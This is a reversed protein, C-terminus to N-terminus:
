RAHRVPRRPRRPPAPLGIAAMVARERRRMRRREGPTGDDEGALHLLGHVMYYALEYRAQWGLERAVRAATEASAVIDGCLGDAASAALDFTLVDTPDSLGMWRDHLTAIQQDSVVVLTLTTAEARLASVARRVTRGLWVTDVRVLRQRNVVEVNIAVTVEPQCSVGGMAGASLISEKPFKQPPPRSRACTRQLSLLCELFPLSPPRRVSSSRQAYGRWALLSKGGGRRRYMPHFLVPMIGGSHSNKRLFLGTRIRGAENQTPRPSGVGRRRVNAGGMRPEVCEFIAANEGDM